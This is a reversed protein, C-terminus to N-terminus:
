LGMQGAAIAPRPTPFLLFYFNPFCFNIETTKEQDSIEAKQKLFGNFVWFHSAAIVGVADVMGAQPLGLAAGPRLGM